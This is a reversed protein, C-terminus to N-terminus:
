QAVVLPIRGEVSPFAPIQELEIPSNPRRHLANESPKVATSSAWEM